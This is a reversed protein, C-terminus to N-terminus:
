KLNNARTALIVNLYNPPKLPKREMLQDPYHVLAEDDL